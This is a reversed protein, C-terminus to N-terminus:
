ANSYCSYKSKFTVVILWFFNVILASKLSIIYFYVYVYLHFGYCIIIIFVIDYLGLFIDYAM